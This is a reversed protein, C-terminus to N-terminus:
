SGLFKRCRSIRGFHDFINGGLTHGKSQLFEKAKEVAGKAPTTSAFYADDDYYGIILPKDGKFTKERFPTKSPDGFLIRCVAVLAAIDQSIPGVSCGIEKGMGPLPM